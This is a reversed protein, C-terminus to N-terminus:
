CKSISDGKSRLKRRRDIMEAIHGDRWELYATGM